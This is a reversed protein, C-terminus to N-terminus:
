EDDSDLVPSPTRRRMWSVAVPRDLLKCAGIFVGMLPSVMHEYQGLGHFVVTHLKPLVEAARLVALRSLICAVDLVLKDGTVDLAQVATFPHLLGQWVALDQEGSESSDKRRLSLHHVHCTHPLFQTFIQGLLLLQRFLGPCHLQLFFTCGSSPSILSAKITHDFLGIYVKHPPKFREVHHLFQPVQPIDFVPQYFFYLSLSSLLPADIRSM